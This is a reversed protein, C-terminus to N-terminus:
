IMFARLFVVRVGWLLEVKTWKLIKLSARWSWFGTWGSRFGTWGTELSNRQWRQESRNSLWFSDSFNHASIKWFSTWGSKPGAWGIKLGTSDGASYILSGLVGQHFGTWGTKPGKEWRSGDKPPDKLYGGCEREENVEARGRIRPQGVELCLCENWRECGFDCGRWDNSPDKTHPSTSRVWQQNWRSEGVRKVKSSM